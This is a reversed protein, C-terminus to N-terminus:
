DLYEDNGEEEVLQKTRKKIQEALGNEGKDDPEDRSYNAKAIEWDAFKNYGRKLFEDLRWKYKFFFRNDSVIRGYNNIATIIDEESQKGEVDERKGELLKKIEKEMKKTMKKHKIINQSQWAEFIKPVEPPTSTNNIYLEKYPADQEGGGHMKHVVERADQAGGVESDRDEDPKEKTEKEPYYNVIYTNSTRSGDSKFNEEKLLFGQEILESVVSVAKRRSMGTKEAIKDYSPFADSGNNSCRALYSYVALHYASLGFDFINNPTKFYEEQLNNKILRM